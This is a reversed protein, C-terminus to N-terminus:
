DDIQNDKLSTAHLQRFDGLTKQIITYELKYNQEKKKLYNSCNKVLIGIAYSVGATIPVVIIGM